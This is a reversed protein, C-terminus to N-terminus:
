KKQVAINFCESCISKLKSVWIPYDDPIPLIVNGLFGNQDAFESSLYFSEVIENDYEYEITVPQKISILKQLRSVLDPSVQLAERFGHKDCKIM